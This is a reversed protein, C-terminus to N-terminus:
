VRTQLLQDGMLSMAVWAVGAAPAGGIPQM